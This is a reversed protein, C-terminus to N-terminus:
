GSSRVREVWRRGESFEPVRSEDREYTALRVPWDRSQTLSSFRVAPSGSERTPSSVHSNLRSVHVPHTSRFYGSNYHDRSFVHFVVEFIGWFFRALIEKVTSALNFGGMKNKRIIKRMGGVGQGWGNEILKSGWM